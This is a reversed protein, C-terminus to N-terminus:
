TLVMRSPVRRVTDAKVDSAAAIRFAPQTDLVTWSARRRSSPWIVLSRLAYWDVVSSSRLRDASMLDM